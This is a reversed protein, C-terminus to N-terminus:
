MWKNKKFFYTVLAVMASIFGVLFWFASSNNAHPLHVNMGYMGTILTGIGLLITISTMLKFVKNLNNATITSYADRINRITKLQSEALRILEESGLELDEMLDKDDEYLRIHKGSLLHNLQTNMPELALLFDNLDEEIDIFSIFDDNDVQSKNLRSRISWIKKGISNIRHKYGSNIEDIIHFLLQARKITMVANGNIINKLSSFPHKTILYIMDVGFVILLPSTTMKENEPLVFRVYIYVRGDWTEIRPAENEDLGDTILDKDLGHDVELKEIIEESPDEIYVFAGERPSKITHITKNKNSFYIEM